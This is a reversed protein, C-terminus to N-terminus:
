KAQKPSVVKYQVSNQNILDLYFKKYNTINNKQKPIVM